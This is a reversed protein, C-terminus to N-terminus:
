GIATGTFLNYGTQLEIISVVLFVIGALATYAVFIYMKDSKLFWKFLVISIYGVLASVLVGAVIAAISVDINEPTKLADMGELLAAAVISPIGLVFTNGNFYTNIM